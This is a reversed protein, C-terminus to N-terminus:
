FFRSTFNVVAYWALGNYIFSNTDLPIANGDQDYVRELSSAWLVTAISIFITDNAVHKGPCARRGFGYTSHGDDRAEAVMKGEADLFRRPNFGAADDGYLATDHHCLWLNPLCITGKPIFMGDYWDDETTSHPISLPLPPRWRLVEKVVAQVYPLSSADSFTPIRSRGVVADLEAQAHKQIEPNTIM